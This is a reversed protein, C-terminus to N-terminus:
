VPTVGVQLPQWCWSAYSLVCLVCKLACMLCRFFCELLWREPSRQMFAYGQCLKLQGTLPETHSCIDLQVERRITNGKHLGTLQNIHSSFLAAQQLTIKSGWITSLTNGLDITWTEYTSCLTIMDLHNNEGINQSIFMVLMQKHIHLHTHTSSCVFLLTNQKKRNAKRKSEFKGDIHANGFATITGLWVEFIEHQRVFLLSWVNPDAATFGFMEKILMLSNKKHSHSKKPITSKFCTQCRPHNILGPYPAAVWNQKWFKKKGTAVRPM